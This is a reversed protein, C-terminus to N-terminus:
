FRTFCLIIVHEIAHTVYIVIDLLIWNNESIIRSLCQWKVALKASPLCLEGMRSIPRGM